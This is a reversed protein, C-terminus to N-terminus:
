PKADGPWPETEDFSFEFGEGPEYIHQRPSVYRGFKLSADNFLVTGKATVRFEGAEIARYVRTYYEAQETCVAIGTRAENYYKRLNVVETVMFERAKEQSRDVAAHILAKGFNEMPHALETSEKRTEEVSGTPSENSNQNEEM